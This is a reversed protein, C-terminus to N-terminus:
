WGATHPRHRKRRPDPRSRARDHLVGRCFLDAAPCPNYLPRLRSLFQWSRLRWEECYVRPDLGDGCCLGDGGVYVDPLHYGGMQSFNSLTSEGGYAQWNTNTVFSITTNFALFPEVGGFNLQNLPLYNQFSLVLYIIVAMFMNTMLMHVTYTRWNMAQSATRRGILFYIANDIPDAIRDFFTRQGTVVRAMYRGLPISILLIALLTLVIQLWAQLSM